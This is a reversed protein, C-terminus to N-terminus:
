EDEGTLHNFIRDIDENTMRGIDLQQKQPMVYRLLKDLVSFKEFPTLGSWEQELDATRENIFRQIWQRTATTAKNPTGKPRGGPNGSVGKPLGM